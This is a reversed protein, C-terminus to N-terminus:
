SLIKNSQAVRVIQEGLWRVDPVAISNGIAKYRVSDSAIKGNPMPIATWDDPFGMVRECELPTLKRVRPDVGDDVLVFAKDSGGQSARLCFSKDDGIEAQEGGDRGRFAVGYAKLPASGPTPDRGLSADTGWRTSIGFRPGAKHRTNQEFLVDRPDAGDRPCAVVFLRKRHQAVGSYKADFLRWAVNRKPGLVYGANTWRGGSPYLPGVEGSLAALLYGFAEGKETSLAGEVNEWCTFPAEIEDALECFKLMLAGRPDALGRKKGAASMSQCPTSGWFIDLAGKWAVGDINLMNGLNPVDPFHYDLLRCPFDEIESGFLNEIGLDRWGLTVAEVGSCVTGSKLIM